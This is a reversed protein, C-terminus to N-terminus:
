QVFRSQLADLRLLSVVRQLATSPNKLSVPHNELLLALLIQVGAIDINELAGLDLELTESTTLALALANRAEAAEAITLDGSVELRMRPGNTLTTITM